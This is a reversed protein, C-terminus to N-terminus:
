LYPHLLMGTIKRLKLEAQILSFQAGFLAMRSKTHQYESLILDTLSVIQQKYGALNTRYIIGTAELNQIEMDLTSRANQYTQLAESYESQFSKYLHDRQLDLQKLEVQKLHIRSQKALGNFLPIQLQIGILGSQFFRDDGGDLFDFQDRMGQYYHQGFAALAPLRSQKEIQLELRTASKQKDLMQLEIRDEINAHASWPFNSKHQGAEQPYIFSGPDIGTILKLLNLQQSYNESMRIQEIELKSIDIAVREVDAKRAMGNDSQSQVIQKLREMNGITSDFASIQHDLTICLHFLISTQYLIEEVQQQHNLDHLQLLASILKLSTFYSQDYILQSYKIGSNWDFRTGLEVPIKGTLGFIEGPIVMKPIAYYHSLSSYAEVRPLLGSHLERKQMLLKQRELQSNLIQHNNELVMQLVAELSLTDPIIQAKLPFALLLLGFGLYKIQTKM